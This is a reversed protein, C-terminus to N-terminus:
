EMNNVYQLDELELGTLLFTNISMDHASVIGQRAEAEDEAALELRVDQLTVEACTILTWRFACARLESVLPPSVIRTPLM